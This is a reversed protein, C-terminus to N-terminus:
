TTAVSHYLHDFRGSGDLLELPAAETAFIRRLAPNHEFTIRQRVIAAARAGDIFDRPQPEFPLKDVARPRLAAPDLVRVLLRGRQVLGCGDWRRLYQQSKRRATEPAVPEGLANREPMAAALLLRSVTQSPWPLSLTFAAVRYHSLRHPVVLSM